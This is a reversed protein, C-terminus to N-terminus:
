RRAAAREYLGHFGISWTAGDDSSVEWVQSVRGDPLPTWTIRDRVTGNPTVRPATGTLVMSGDRLSGELWLTSGDGVWRQTWRGLADDYTNVSIGTGGRAGSWRELLGCGRAVRTIENRGLVAGDQNRVTWEGVWFDFQRHEPATCRPAVVTDAAASDGQQAHLPLACFPLIAAALISLRIGPHQPQM